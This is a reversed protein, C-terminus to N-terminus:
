ARDNLVLRPASEAGRRVGPRRAMGAGEMQYVTMRCAEVERKYLDNLDPYRLIRPSPRPGAGADV